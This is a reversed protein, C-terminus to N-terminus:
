KCDGVESKSFSIESSSFFRDASAGSTYREEKM